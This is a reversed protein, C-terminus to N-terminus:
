KTLSKLSFVQFNEMFNGTISNHTHGTSHGAADIELYKIVRQM